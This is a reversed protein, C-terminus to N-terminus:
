SSFPCFHCKHYSVEKVLDSKIYKHTTTMQFARNCKIRLFLPRAYAPLHKALESTIEDFDLTNDENTTIIAAMGAKGDTNHVPVAYVVVDKITQCPSLAQSVETTSCNEGKWRFTDGVRDAWYFFGAEDRYLLDGSNFFKDGKKFVDTFVKDNTAKSDTYGDFRRSVDGKTNIEAILLGPENPKCLELNGEANRYPKSQDDPDVKIIKLPYIFDMFRPIYGLAGVKNTANMLGMNGETAAYFEVIDKVRYRHLFKEWYEMRMGNGFIIRINLKEDNPNPPLVTLYRCLEGIYQFITVKYKMCDPTFSSASFKKRILLTTGTNICGGMALMCASSHYLPLPAYAIDHQNATLLCRYFQSGMYYRTHSIKCAKPLGTTGSTYIFILCDKEFIQKRIDRSPRATSCARVANNIAAPHASQESNADWAVVEVGQEKLVKMEEQLADFLEVEVILVKKETSKLTNEITQTLSRGTLNHNILATAGGFKAIGLWICTYDLNNTSMLAVTDFSKLGRQVGWHAIQNALTEMQQLTRTQATEAMIMQVAQPRADVREEFLDVFSYPKSARTKGHWKAAFLMQLMKMLAIFYTWVYALVGVAVVLVVLLIKEIVAM